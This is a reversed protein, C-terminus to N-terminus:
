RSRLSRASLALAALSSFVLQAFPERTRAAAIEARSQLVSLASRMTAVDELAVRAAERAEVVERELRQLCARAAAANDAAAMQRALEATERNM